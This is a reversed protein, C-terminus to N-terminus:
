RAMEGSVPERVQQGKHKVGRAPRMSEAYELLFSLVLGVLISGIVAMALQSILRNEVPGTPPRAPEVVQIFNANKAQNEKFKAEIERELFLNYASELQKINAVLNQHESALGVLQRLESERKAVIEEFRASVVADGTGSARDREIRLNTLLTEYAEIERDLMGVNNGLRFKRLEENLIDLDKKTQALQQSIYQRASTAPKSRVSGLYEIAVALHTNVLNQAEDPTEAEGTVIMFDTDPLQQVRVRNVVDLPSSDTGLLQATKWAVPISKLIESFTNKASLIEIRAEPRLLQSFIVVDGPEPATVQLKASALYVPLTYFSRIAITGTALLLIILLIWLRKCVINVYVMLSASTEM